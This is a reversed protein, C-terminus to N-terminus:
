GNSAAFPQRTQMPIVQGAASLVAQLAAATTDEGFAVATATEHGFRIRVSAMANAETGASLAHQDFQEVALGIGYRQNLADVLAEVVGHGQGSLHAIQQGAGVGVAAKVENGARSLAYSDLEWGAPTAGFQQSFIEHIRAPAVEGGSRESEAQVARSVEQALWRPLSIAYDRELVHAVGGKGSQSNIRVVEEYRRGLDAPDIPLYPVSWGAAPHERYHAMGKRIADQHSGSFATYVLEGVWPHRPHVPMGTCETYSEAMERAASLDLEPDVGQSYLNMAMTVIDMNGTREGNGMLTGEVRDAGALVALEAAAIGCGRDNHTHVSISVHERGPLHDCFWEVQDAFVNPTSSEVTAPLNHIVAQGHEPRWVDNVATCVEVAFDPETQSFSEPSYQFTWETGPYRAAYDKVWQAGRVAIAKVGARDLRFVQERQAPNTSNYVHVIARKVGRLAEYTRAILEERAQTLVQIAVDDPVRGEDIIRRVFDFDPQSAAPFGVEIEKFGMSVLLEFLKLKQEVNMPQVLAQNGDRLDVSAWRPARDITRDPWRRDRKALPPFPRYKRHDFGSM